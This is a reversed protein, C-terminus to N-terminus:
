LTRPDRRSTDPRAFADPPRAPKEEVTGYGSANSIEEILSQILPTVALLTVGRHCMDAMLSQGEPNVFDVERLDLVTSRGETISAATQWCQRLEEVWPGCLKGELRFRLESASDHITIKLMDRVSIM